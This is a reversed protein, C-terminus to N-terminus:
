WKSKIGCYICRLWMDGMDYEYHEMVHNCERQTVYEDYTRGDGNTIWDEFWDLRISATLTAKGTM